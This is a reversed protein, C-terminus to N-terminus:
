FSPCRLYKDEAPRNFIASISLEFSNTKAVQQGIESANIDYSVGFKLNNFQLGAFPVVADGVRYSTGGLLSLNEGALYRFNVAVIKQNASGQQMYLVSPTIILEDSVNIGFAAHAAIRMPLKTKKSKSIFYEEPSTIHHVAFGVFPTIKKNESLDTYLLGASADFVSSKNVAVYDTSPATPDFGSINNWQDETQFKTADFRKSVMGAQLALTLVKNGEADFRVGSYSFSGYAQQYTYGTGTSQQFVSFGFAANDSTNMEVNAGVTKFGGSMDSWQSRFIGAVRYSGDFAGTFAPNVWTPFVYLQSFHPDVQAEAKQGLLAAFLSIALIRKM